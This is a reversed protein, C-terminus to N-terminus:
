YVKHQKLLAPKCMNLSTEVQSFWMQRSSYVDVTVDYQVHDFTNIVLYLPNILLFPGM